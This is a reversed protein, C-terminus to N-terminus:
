ATQTEFFLETVSLYVFEGGIENSGYRQSGVYWRSTREVPADGERLQGFAVALAQDRVLMLRISKAVNRHLREGEEADVAKVMHQILVLYSGIVAGFGGVEYEIPTWEECSIGCTGNPDTPRLGRGIVANVGDIYGLHDKLVNVVNSPFLESM